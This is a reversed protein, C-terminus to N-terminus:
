EGQDSFGTLMANTCGLCGLGWVRFLLTCQEEGNDTYIGIYAECFGTFSRMSRM